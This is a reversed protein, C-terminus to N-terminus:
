AKKKGTIIDHIYDRNTQEIPPLYYGGQLSMLQYVERKSRVHVSVEKWNIYDQSEEM